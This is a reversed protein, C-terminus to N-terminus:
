RLRVAARGAFVVGGSWFASRGAAGIHQGSGGTRVRDVQEGAVHGFKAAVAESLRRGRGLGARHVGRGGAGGDPGFFPDGFGNFFSIGGVAPDLARIVDGPNVAITPPLTELIEEPTASVHRILGGPWPDSAPPIVLDTRGALFIADSGDITVDVVAATASVGIMVSVCGIALMLKVYFGRQNKM